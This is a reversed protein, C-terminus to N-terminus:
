REEQSELCWICLHSKSPWSWFEESVSAKYLPIITERIRLCRFCVNRWLFTIKYFLVSIEQQSKRQSKGQSRSKREEKQSKKKRKRRKRNKAWLISFEWATCCSKLPDWATCCPKLPDWTNQALTRLTEPNAGPTYTVPFLIQTARERAIQTLSTLRRSERSCISKLQQTLWAPISCTRVSSPAACVSSM